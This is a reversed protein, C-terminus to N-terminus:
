NFSFSFEFQYREAFGLKSLRHAAFRCAEALLSKAVQSPLQELESMLYGKALLYETCMVRELFTQSGGTFPLDTNSNEESM